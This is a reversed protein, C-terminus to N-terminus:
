YHSGRILFNLFQQQPARFYMAMLFYWFQDISILVSKRDHSIRLAIPFLNRIQFFKWLIGINM